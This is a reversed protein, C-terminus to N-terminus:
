YTDIIRDPRIMNSKILRTNRTPSINIFKPIKRKSKSNNLIVAYTAYAVFATPNFFQDKTHLINFIIGSIKAKPDFILLTAIQVITVLKYKVVREYRKFTVYYCSKLLM